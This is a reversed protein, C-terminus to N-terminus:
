RKMTWTNPQSTSSARLSAALIALDQDKVMLDRDQASLDHARSRVPSVTGHEGGQRPEQPQVPDDSGSGQQGPVQAQGPFL